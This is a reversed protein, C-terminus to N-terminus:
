SNAPCTAARPSSTEAQSTPSATIPVAGSDKALVDDDIGAVDDGCRAPQGWRDGAGQRDAEGGLVAGQALGAEGRAVGHEDGAGRGADAQQTCLQDLRQSCGRHQAGGAGRVFPVEKGVGPDVGDDNGTFVVEGIRDECSGTTLPDLQHEVVDGALHEGVAQWQGTTITPDHVDAAEVSCCRRDVDVGQGIAVEGDVADGEAGAARDLESVVQGPELRLDNRGHDLSADPRDDVSGHAPVLVNGRCRTKVATVRVALDHESDVCLGLDRQVRVAQHRRLREVISRRTWGLLAAQIDVIFFWTWIISVGGLIFIGTLKRRWDSRLIAEQRIPLGQLGRSLVEVAQYIMLAITLVILLTAVMNWGAITALSQDTDVSNICWFFAGVFTLAKIAGEWWFLRKARYPESSRKDEPHSEEAM